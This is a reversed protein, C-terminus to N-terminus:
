DDIEQLLGSIIIIRSRAFGDGHGGDFYGGGLEFVAATIFGIVDGGDFSHAFGCGQITTLCDSKM